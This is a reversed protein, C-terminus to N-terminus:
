IVLDGESVKNFITSLSVEIQSKIENEYVQIEKETRADYMRMVSEWEKFELFVDYHYVHNTISVKGGDLIVFLGLEKNKIYKKGSIPAIVFKSSEHKILKRCISVCIRVNEDKTRQNAKIKKQSWIIFKSYLKKLKTKLNRM